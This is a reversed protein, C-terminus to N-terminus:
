KVSGRPIKCTENLMNFESSIESFFGDIITRKATEESLGRTQLYYVEKPNIKKISVGHTCKVENNSIALSPMVDARVGPTLMLVETKEYGNCMKKDKKISILGRSVLRSNDKLAAKALINSKTYEAEHIAESNFDAVANKGLYFLSKHNVSGGAGILTTKTNSQAFGEGTAIDIWELMANSNILAKRRTFSSNAELSSFYRVKSGEGVVLLVFTSNFEKSFNKELFDVSSFPGAFM